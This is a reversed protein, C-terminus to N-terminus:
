EMQVEYFYNIFYKYIENIINVLIIIYKMKNPSKKKRIRIEQIIKTRHVICTMQTFNINRYDSKFKVEQM